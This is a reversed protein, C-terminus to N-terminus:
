LENYIVGEEQSPVILICGRRNILCDDTFSVDVEGYVFSTTWLVNEFFIM